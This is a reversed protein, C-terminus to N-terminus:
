GSYNRNEKLFVIWRFQETNDFRAVGNANPYAVESDLRPSKELSTTHPTSIM